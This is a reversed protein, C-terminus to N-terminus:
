GKQPPEREVIEVEIGHDRLKKVLLAFGLKTKDIGMPVYFTVIKRCKDGDIDYYDNIALHKAITLFADITKRPLPFVKSYKFVHNRTEYCKVQISVYIRESM